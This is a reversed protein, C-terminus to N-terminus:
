GPARRGGAGPGEGVPSTKAFSGGGTSVLHAQPPAAGVGGRGLGWGGGGPLEGKAFGVLGAGLGGAAGGGPLTGLDGRGHRAMLQALSRFLTTYPFLTSRPPRRIM